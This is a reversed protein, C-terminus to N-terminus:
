DPLAYLVTEAPNICYHRLYFTYQPDYNLIIEPLDYIDEWRHYVSIALKPKFKKIMREAGLLANKEAGEIDMKIFTVKENILEADLSTVDIVNDGKLCVHSDEKGTGTFSLKGEKNWIGKRILRYRAHNQEFNYTCKQINTEDPEFAIIGALKSDNCWKLFNISTMGDYCGLDVFTEEKNPKMYELDFYQDQKVEFLIKGLNIIREEPIGDNRLQLYMEDFYRVSTIVIYEDTHKNEKMWASYALQPIGSIEERKPNNDVICKFSLQSMLELFEIGRGGGGFIVLEYEKSIDAIRGLINNLKCNSAVIKRVYSFDRSISFMLRNGFLEKSTEDGFTDYIRKLTSFNDDIM